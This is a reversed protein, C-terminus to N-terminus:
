ANKMTGKPMVASIANKQVKIELEAAVEISIFSDGMRTIRGLVGGTTVVEDGKSLSELMQRHEKAQRTQPRIIMFYFIVFFIVMMFLFSSGGGTSGADQAWANNILFDFM